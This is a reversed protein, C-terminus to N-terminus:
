TAAGEAPVMGDRDADFPRSALAPAENRQSLARIACFGALGTETISAETGCAIMADADGRRIVESAEGIAQAGAACATIITSSYARAGFTKSLQGAAMTPLM